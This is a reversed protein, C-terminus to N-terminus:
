GASREDLAHTRLWDLLLYDLARQHTSELVV